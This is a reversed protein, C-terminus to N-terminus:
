LIYQKVILAEAPLFVGLDNYPKQWVPPINCIDSRLAIVRADVVSFNLMAEGQSYIFVIFLCPQHGIINRLRPIVCHDIILVWISIFM